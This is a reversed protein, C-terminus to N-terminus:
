DAAAEEAPAERNWPMAAFFRSATEADDVPAESEAEEMVERPIEDLFPSPVCAHTELRLKRTRCSSIYLRRRARTIAVYFLRREEEMSRPDEEISRAHPIIGDEVGPLFVVDFELGKAAHITMLNVKGETDDELQDRANLTIRNLWRTLTPELNDPHSEWRGLMDIFGRVNEYRWKAMKENQRFEGILYGWYGIEDVLEGLAAALPGGGREDSSKGNSDRLAGGPRGGGRAGGSNGEYENGSGPRGGGRIGAAGRSGAGGARGASEGGEFVERYREIVDLFEALGARVKESVVRTGGSSDSFVIDAAASYLSCGRRRSRDVLGELTTRGVGRRPRNIVRLLNVDDDPNDIVRLYGIVDKIEQRSFFSTGGSVAYPINNALLADELSRTLANTRVLIGIDHYPLGEATRLAGITDMIFEGEEGEDEPAAFRITMEEEGESTWLEKDKRDTNNSIVANAARLIIGTSRYNRELKIERREPFDGEFSLINTYDAGRWSYISQDDDGVCCLNRHEEALYRTLLYQVTSTDQFEDVMIYLFRRRYARLVDERSELLGLPRIILDDFDVANHLATMQAYEEFLPRHVENTADWTRRRTKIDSFLGALAGLESSEYQLRLERAAENLCALKDGSDYITFKPRLAAERTRERLIGLGFAHFTSVTLGGPKRPGTLRRVREEMERAAKNTFTLALISSPAIGRSLMYAIRATIVGTKGSGAGAVILLPGEISMAAERQEPNMRGLAHELKETM